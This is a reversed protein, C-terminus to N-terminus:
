VQPRSNHWISFKEVKKTTQYGWIINFMEAFWKTRSEILERSWYEFSLLDQTMQISSDEYGKIKKKGVLIGQKKIRFPKNQLPVNIGFELITKNGLKETLDDYEAAIEDQDTAIIGLSIRWDETMADPAIHEVHILKPDFKLVGMNGTLSENLKFAIYRALRSDDFAEYLRSSVNEDIQLNEVFRKRLVNESTEKESRLKLADIATAQFLNELVQANGGVIIWRIALSEVFRIWEELETVSLGVEEDLFALLAIRYSDSLSYLGRFTLDFKRQIEDQDPSDFKILQGYTASKKILDELVQYAKASPDSVPNKPEGVIDHEFISFIDKERISLLNSGTSSRRGYVLQYHRLFQDLYDDGVNEIIEGWKKLVERSELFGQGDISKSVFRILLSKVLDSPSLGLGRNNLTMYITVAEKRNYTSISMVKLNKIVTQFLDHLVRLRSQVDEGANRVMLDRLAKELFINAKRLRRTESRDKKKFKRRNPDKPNRIVCDLFDKKIQANGEFRPEASALDKFLLSIPEHSVDFTSVVLQLNQTEQEMMLDRILSILMFITTLRQQGDIVQLDPNGEESLLIVSGVFHEDKSQTIFELDNWFENVQKAEWAYNRQFDPVVFRGSELLTKVSIVAANTTFM